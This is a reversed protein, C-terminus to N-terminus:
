KPVTPDSCGEKVWDVNNWKDGKFTTNPHSVGGGLGHLGQWCM